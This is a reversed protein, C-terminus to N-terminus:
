KLLEELSEVAEEYVEIMDDLEDREARKLKRRRIVQRMIKTDFGSGKAEAYVDKIGEAVDAKEGELNEVRDIFAKLAHKTNDGVVTNFPDHEKTM